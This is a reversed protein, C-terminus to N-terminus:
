PLGGKNSQGNEFVCDKFFTRQVETDERSRNVVAEKQKSKKVRVVLDREETMESSQQEDCPEAPEDHLVDASEVLPKAPEDCPKASKELRFTHRVGLPAQYNEKNIASDHGMHDLFIQQEGQNMDLSAYITSMWHRVKTATVPLDVLADNLAHWGSAHSSSSKTAFLFFNDSKIGYNGRHKLLLELGPILDKPILVPVYKKEKVKYNEIDFNEVTDALQGCIFNKLKKVECEKIANSPHRSKEMSNMNSKHRASSFMEPSKHKYGVRFMKLERYKVDQMTESYHGMPSKISRLIVADVLLKLGHKESKIADCSEKISLIQIAERLETLYIRSFMSEVTVEEPVLNKFVLFLRALIRMESMVERRLEVQKSQEHRRLNFHRNGVTKITDDVRCLTGIEGDRFKNLISTFELDNDLVTKNKHLLQHKIPFNQLSACKHKSFYKNSVFSTCESCVRIHDETKPKRERMLNENDTSLVKMNYEYIGKRRKTDFFQDQKSKTQKLVEAIEPNTKPNRKYHRSLKGGKVMTQCYICYEAAGSKEGRPTEDGHKECSSTTQFVDTLEAAGSKEGRPTEDGHKECSSTTQFVDTLQIPEDIVTM